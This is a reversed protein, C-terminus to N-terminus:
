ENRLSFGEMEVATYTRTELLKLAQKSADERTMGYLEQLRKTLFAHKALQVRARRDSTKYDRNNGLAMNLHGWQRLCEAKQTTIPRLGRLLGGKVKYADANFTKDDLEYHKTM